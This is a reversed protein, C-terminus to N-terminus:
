RGSSASPTWSAPRRVSRRAPRASRTSCRPPAVLNPANAAGSGSLTFAEIPSKAQIWLGISLQGPDNAVGGQILASWTAAWKGYDGEQEATESLQFQFLRAVAVTDVDTWDPLQRRQRPQHRVPAAQVRGSAQLRRRPAPRHLRQGRQRVRRAARQRRRGRARPRDAGRADFRRGPHHLLHPDGRGSRAGRGGGARGAPRAGRAPLLGDRLTPGARPRLRARRLLGGVQHLQHDPHGARRLHRDGDLGARSYGRDLRDGPHHHHDGGAEPGVCRQDLRDAHRPHQQPDYTSPAIYITTVGSTNTLSGPGDLKWLITGNSDQVLGNFGYTGGVPVSVANPQALAIHPSSCGALLAASVAAAAWVVRKM